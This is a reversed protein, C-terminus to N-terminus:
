TCIYIYIYMTQGYILKTPQVHLTDIDTDIDTDTDTDVVMDTDIEKDIDRDTDTEEDRQMCTLKTPRRRFFNNVRLPVKNVRLPVKNGSLSM